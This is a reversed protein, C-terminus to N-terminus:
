ERLARAIRKMASQAFSKHAVAERQVEPYASEVAKALAHMRAEFAEMDRAKDGYLLKLGRIDGASLEIGDGTPACASNETRYFLSPFRYLMVSGPDFPGAVARPDEQTLLNHDVKARSWFNPFGALYTYIGPRRGQTDSIYRGDADRTPQYGFDDEWRFAEACPGRINQHEHQFALAHLFEHRVVGRWNDPRHSTFGGLNLSRQHPRGGVDDLPSGIAGDVSDTGVLSWFGSKDFSVRIDAKYDADEESWTRHSGTTRDVGFDLTLHCIDTIVKTAAAIERHLDNDGNLFAVTVTEGPRWRQLDSLVFELGGSDPPLRDLFRRRVELSAQLSDPLADLIVDDDRLRSLWHTGM